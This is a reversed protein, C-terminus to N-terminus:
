IAIKRKHTFRRCQTEANGRSKRIGSKFDNNGSRSSFRSSGVDGIDTFVSYVEMNKLPYSKSLFRYIHNM